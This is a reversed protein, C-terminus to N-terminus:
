SAPPQSRGFYLVYGESDRVEFGRLGDDPRDGVPSHLTLGNAVLEIALAAPDQVNVFADWSTRQVARNVGARLSSLQQAHSDSTARRALQAYQSLM